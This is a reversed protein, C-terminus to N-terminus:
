KESSYSISLGLKEGNGFYNKIKEGLHSVCLVINAFNNKKLLRLQHELELFPKEKIQIMAKPIKYTIPRLRTGLGGALIVTQM